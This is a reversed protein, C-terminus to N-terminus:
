SEKETKPLYDSPLMKCVPEYRWVGKVEVKSPDKFLGNKSFEVSPTNLSIWSTQYKYSNLGMIGDPDDVGKEIYEVRLEGDFKMVSNGSLINPYILDYKEIEIDSVTSKSFAMASTSSVFQGNYLRYGFYLPSKNSAMAILFHRLSGEFANKRNKEWRAQEELDATKMEEFYYDADVTLGLIESYEKSIYEQLDVTIIYGLYYNEVILKVPKNLRIVGEESSGLKIENPNAIECAYDNNIYQDIFRDLLLAKDNDSQAISNGNLQMIVQELSDVKQELEQVRKTKTIEPDEVTEQNKSFYNGVSRRELLKFNFDSISRADIAMDLKMEKVRYGSHYAQVSYYGRPVKLEFVGDADTTTSITTGEVWVKANAIPEDDGIGTVSGQVNLVRVKATENIVKVSNSCASFGFLIVFLLLLNQMSRRKLVSLYTTTTDVVSLSM